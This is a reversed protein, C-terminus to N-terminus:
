LKGLLKGLRDVLNATEQGTIWYRVNNQTVPALHTAM